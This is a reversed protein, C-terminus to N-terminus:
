SDRALVYQLERSVVQSERSLSRLSRCLHSLVIIPDPDPELGVVVRHNILGRALDGLRHDAGLRLDFTRYWQRRPDVAVRDDAARMHVLRTALVELDADM